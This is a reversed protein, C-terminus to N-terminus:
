WLSWHGGFLVWAAVLANTTAHAALADGIRGRRLLAAAYLVGALLPPGFLQLLFGQAFFFFRGSPRYEGSALGDDREVFVTLRQRQVKVVELFRQLHYGVSWRRTGTADPGSAGNSVACTPALWSLAWFAPRSTPPVLCWAIDAEQM